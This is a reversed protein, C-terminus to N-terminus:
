KRMVKPYKKLYIEEGEQWTQGILGDGLYIRKKTYKRRKYAYCASLELCPIKSDDVDILFIAGQNAGVYKALESLVQHTLEHMQDTYLRIIENFKSIGENIWRRETEKQSAERLDDRMEL